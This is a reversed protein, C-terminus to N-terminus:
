QKSKRKIISITILLAFFILFISFGPTQQEQANVIVIIQTTDSMGGDDTITLNVAYAGETIYTHMPSVGMASNGDGFIWKYDVITGDKDYSKSADFVIAEKITGVYPGGIDPIPPFNYTDSSITITTTKMDSRGNNDVVTLTVTYHGSQEYTHEPTMALIESSGDGFNWRYFDIDGDPDYSGSGDLWIPEAQDASYPGGTDAIPKQNDPPAIRTSFIWIDSRNQLLGDDAIAYWAFTTDFPQNFSCKGTSGSEIKDVSKILTDDSARYFHVTLLDSDPDNVEVELTIKLGVGTEFDEPSPGSPKEPPKLFYGLPHPDTIGNAIYSIDGIGDKDLDINNYDSWYNGQENKNWVNDGNEQASKSNNKFKNKYLINNQASFTSYIGSATSNAFINNYIECNSQDLNIGRRNSEFYNNYIRSNPTQLYIASGDNNNFSNNWVIAGNGGYLGIGNYINNNLTNKTINTTTCSHVNIGQGCFQITNNYLRNNRSGTLYIGDDTCNTILNNFLDNTDSADIYIGKKTNNIINGSIVSGSSDPNLYIGWSDTDNIYNGQVVVNDAKVAILAGIPSTKHDGTDRITFSEFTVFDSTIQITYREDELIEIISPGNEISGVLNVQKNIILPAGYAGGFVYITDGTTARELADQITKLPYEATGDRRPYSNDDVYISNGTAAKYPPTIFPTLINIFLLGALLIYVPRHHM